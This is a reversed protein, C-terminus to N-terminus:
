VQISPVSVFPGRVTLRQRNTETTKLLRLVEDGSAAEGVIQIDKCQHFKTRLGERLILHDDVLLLRIM